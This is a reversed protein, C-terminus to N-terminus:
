FNISLLSFNKCLLNVEKEYEIYTFKPLSACQSLKSEFSKLKMNTPIRPDSSDFWFKLIPYTNLKMVCREEERFISENRDSRSVNEELVKNKDSSGCKEAIETEAQADDRGKGGDSKFDLNLQIKERSNISFSKKVSIVHKNETNCKERKSKKSLFGSDIAVQNLCKLLCDSNSLATHLVTTITLPNEFHNQCQFIHLINKLCKRFNQLELWCLYFDGPDCKTYHPLNESALTM